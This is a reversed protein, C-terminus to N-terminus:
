WRMMIRQGGVVVVMMRQMATAANSSSASTSSSTSPATVSAAVMCHGIVVHERWRTVRSRHPPASGAPLFHRITPVVIVRVSCLARHTRVTWGGVTTDVSQSRVQAGLVRVLQDFMSMQVLGSAPNRFRKRFCALTCRIVFDWGLFIAM